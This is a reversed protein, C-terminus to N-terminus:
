NPTARRWWSCGGQQHIISTPQHHRRRLDHLRDIETQFLRWFRFCAWSAWAGPCCSTFMPLPGAGPGGKIRALLESGEEM